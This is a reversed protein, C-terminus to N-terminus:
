VGKLIFDGPYPLSRALRSEVGPFNEGQYTNAEQNVVAKDIEENLKRNM